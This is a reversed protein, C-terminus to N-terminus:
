ARRMDEFDIGAEHLEGLQRPQAEIDILLRDLLVPNAGSGYTGGLRSDEPDLWHTVFRAWSPGTAFSPDTWQPASNIM